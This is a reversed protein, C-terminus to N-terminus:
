TKTTLRKLTGKFIYSQVKEPNLVYLSRAFYEGSRAVRVAVKVYHSNIPFEKVYEISEDNPNIGVYDPNKIISPIYEGYRVYEAPHNNRMHAINSQGMFIPTGAMVSLGLADIVASTIEGVKQISDNTM